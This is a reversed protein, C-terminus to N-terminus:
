DSVSEEYDDCGKKQHSELEYADLIELIFKLNDILSQLECDGHWRIYTSDGDPYMGSGLIPPEHSVDYLCGDQPHIGIITESYDGGLFGTTEVSVDFGYSISSKHCFKM